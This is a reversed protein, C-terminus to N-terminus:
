RLDEIRVTAEAESYNNSKDIAMAGLKYEGTLNASGTWSYGYTKRQNGFTSIVFKQQDNIFFIVRNLDIDDQASVSIEVDNIAYPKKAQLGGITPAITDILAVEIVDEAPFLVSEWPEGCSYYIVLFLAIIYRQM